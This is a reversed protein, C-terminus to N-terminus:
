MRRRSDNTDRNPGPVSDVLASVEGIRPIGSLLEGGPTRLLFDTPAMWRTAATEIPYPPAETRAVMVLIAAVTAAAAVTMGLWRAPRRRHRQAVAFVPAGAAERARALQFLQRLDDSSGPGSM